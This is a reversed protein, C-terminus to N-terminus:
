YSVSLFSDIASSKGIIAAKMERVSTGLAGEELNKKRM